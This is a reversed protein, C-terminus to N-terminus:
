ATFGGDVVIETGTVCASNDSLLFRVAQVVDRVEGLRGLPTRRMVAERTSEDMGASMESEFYGPMVCNVRINKAGYERALSRSFALLAGKTASYVSLGSLGTKAAVSSVFVINGGGGRALMGKIVERTLLINGLINTNITREIDAPQTLTLFGDLGVAANAVFGDLGDILRTVRSFTAISAADALDLAQFTLRKPFRRQLKTLEPSRQRSTALVQHGDKLLSRCLALGLGRSGGPILIRKM